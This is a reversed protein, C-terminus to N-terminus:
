GEMEGALCGWLDCLVAASALVESLRSGWVLSFGTILQSVFGVGVGGHQRQRENSSPIHHSIYNPCRTKQTGREYPLVRTVM